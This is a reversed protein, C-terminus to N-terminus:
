KPSEKLGRLSRDNTSNSEEINLCDSTILAQNAIDDSGAAVKAFNNAVFVVAAECGESMAHWGQADYRAPRAIIAGVLGFTCAVAIHNTGVQMARNQRFIWVNGVEQNLLRYRPAITFKRGGNEDVIGEGGLRASNRTLPWALTLYRTKCERGKVSVKSQRVPHSAM